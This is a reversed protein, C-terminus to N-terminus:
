GGEAVVGSVDTEVPAPVHLTVAAGGQPSRGFKVTGGAETMRQRMNGLGNGSERAGGEAFGKGNDEVRIEVACGRHELTVHLESAGAHRIVNTVAERTALLLHQRLSSPLMCDVDNVKSSIRVALGARRGMEEIMRTLYGVTNHWSDNRPNIAWISDNMQDVLDRACAAVREPGGADTRGRRLEDGIIVLEALGAGLQDHMDRAIRAREAQRAEAVAVQEQLRRMRARFIARVTGHVGGATILGGIVWFWPRRWVPALVQFPFRAPQAAEGFRDTARVEFVFEGHPLHQYDVTRTPGLSTWATDKPSLRVEYRVGDPHAVGPLTFRFEARHVEGKLSCAEPVLEGNMRVEEILIQGPAESKRYSEPHVQVVGISSTFWLDGDPTTAVAQGTKGYGMQGGIGDSEGFTIAVPFPGGGAFWAMLPEAEIRFFGTQGSFWLAGFKDAAMAFVHDSPFGDAKRCSRLGGDHYRWLGDGYTAVWVSEGLPVIGRVAMPKGGGSAVVEEGKGDKWRYLGDSETGIWLWGEATRALARVDSGGERFPLVEHGFPSLLVLPFEGRRGMYLSGESGPLLVNVPAAFDPVGSVGRAKGDRCFLLGDSETGGFLGGDPGAALATFPIVREGNSAVLWPRAYGKDLQFSGLDGCAAAVVGDLMVAVASVATTRVNRRSDWRTFIAPQIRSIGGNECGVWLHGHRDMMMALVNVGGLGASTAVRERSGDPLFAVLGECASGMWFVGARDELGLSVHRPCWGPPDTVTLEEPSAGEGFSTLVGKDSHWARRGACLWDRTEGAHALYPVLPGPAGRSLGSAGAIVVGGVGDALARFGKGGPDAWRASCRDLAGGALVSVSGDVGTIWLRGEGDEVLSAVGGGIGGADVLRRQEGGEWAVVSGDLGGIWLRNTRGGALAGIRLFLPDGEAGYVTFRDGDFRALGRRTAAWVYGDATQALATVTPGPLGESMGWSRVLFRESDPAAVTIPAVPPPASRGVVALSLFVLMGLWKGFRGPVLFDGLRKPMAMTIRFADIITHQFAEAFAQQWAHLVRPEGSGSILKWLSADARTPCYGLERYSRLGCAAQRRM